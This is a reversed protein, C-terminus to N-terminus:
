YPHVPDGCKECKQYMIIEGRPPGGSWNFHNGGQSTGSVERFLNEGPFEGLGRLTIKAKALGGSGESYLLHHGKGCSVGGDEWWMRLCKEM